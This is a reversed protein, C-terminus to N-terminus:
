ILRELINFGEGAINGVGVLLSGCPLISTLNSQLNAIERKRWLHVNDREVGGRVISNEAWVSHTGTIIVQDLLILNDSIWKSFLRTRLPRDARTNLLVSIKGQHGLISKWKELFAKTSEIDNVAFANLFKIERGGDEIRLLPSREASVCKMIGDIAEERSIGAIECVALAISINTPYVWDPIDYLGDFNKEIASIVRSGRIAAKEVIKDLFRTEGTVIISASPISDCISEVQAELNNGMEERHDDRINTIVFIHPKFFRSELRQLEPSISMCEMVLSEARSRSASIVTKVQEQVRAVGRRRITDRKGHQIVSPVVGTIKAIVGPYKVSLGSAIYETVSSKGRTGNVHIRLSLSNVSRQLLWKEFILVAILICLIISVVLM